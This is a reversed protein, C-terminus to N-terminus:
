SIATPRFSQARHASPMDGSKMDYRFVQARGDAAATYYLATGDPSWQPAWGSVGKLPQGDVYLAVSSSQNKLDSASVSYALQGKVSVAPGSAYRIRYVDEITFARKEATAAPAASKHARQGGDPAASVTTTLGTLLISLAAVRLTPWLGRRTAGAAQAATFTITQM